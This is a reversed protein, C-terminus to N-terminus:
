LQKRYDHAYERVTRLPRGLLVALEPTVKKALGVITTLYIVSMVTVYASSIGKALM